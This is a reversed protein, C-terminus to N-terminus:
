HSTISLSKFIDILNQINNKFNKQKMQTKQKM